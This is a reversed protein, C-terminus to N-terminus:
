PNQKVELKLTMSISQLAMAVTGAQVKDKRTSIGGHRVHRGYAALLAVQHDPQLRQLDLSVTPYKLALWQTWAEFLRIQEERTLAM